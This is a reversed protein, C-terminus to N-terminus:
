LIYAVKARETIARLQSALTDPIPIGEELRRARSAVEPDGAVLVPQAPDAPPEAHLFDIIDDLESEFAGPAGFHLPDIALFFHGINYPDSQKGDRDHIPSFAGGGLAGALIQAVLGLGYGKHSGLDRTGGIPTLGGAKAGQLLAFADTANRMPKGDSDIIWGEPLPRDYFSYVKVKGM